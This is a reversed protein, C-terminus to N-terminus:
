EFLIKVPGFLGSGQEATDKCFELEKDFYVTLKYAEMKEFSKTHVYENAATNSVYIQLRNEQEVADMPIILRYPPMVKIGMPKGNLWVKATHKVDGLELVARQMNKPATFTTEYVCDGSFDEGVYTKWDGLQVPMAQQDCEQTQLENDGIVFRKVPQMTFNDLILEKSVQLPKQTAIQEDSILIGVTEGSQLDFTYNEAAIPYIAGDTIDMFYTKKDSKKFEVCVQGQGKNFALLLEGNELVRRAFLTDKGILRTEATIESLNEATYVKGGGQKFTILKQQTAKSTAQCNPLVVTTYEATGVCIKGQALKNEDANGLVDDDFIDFAVGKEELAKGCENFSAAASDKLTSIVYDATPMYLAVDNKQVGLSTIYALRSMYNNIHELDAYYSVTKSFNPLEGAMFHETQGYSILMPNYINIGRIAQAGAVYRMEDYTLSPGYVAFSETMCKSAGNQAAASSALRPFFPCKTQYATERPFIQRWIVDVGPIDLCRLARLINYNYGGRYAGLLEDDKDVHGTFALGNENSWKKCALMFNECYLASCMDYFDILAQWDSECPQVVGKLVPFYPIISYGYRKEFEAEMGVFAPVIGPGVPEDTFLAQVTKGFHESINKKYKEHTSEIFKQASEKLLLDPFDPEGVNPFYRVHSYYETLEVTEDFVQGIEVRNKGIFAALANDGLVYPKGGELVVARKELTRKALHPNETLVKGCAGGSPWGGEDYVWANMGRKQAQEMAFAYLSFYEDSLYEPSLQTPIRTPRFHAPLPIIYFARIGMEQMEDLRKSIGEETLADNWTWSYIPAFEVSPSLFLKEDFQKYTKQYISREIKM